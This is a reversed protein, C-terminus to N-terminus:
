QLLHFEVEIVIFQPPTATELVGRGQALVTKSAALAAAVDALSAPDGASAGHEIESGLIFRLVTGDLLTVTHAATDVASVTDAFELSGTARPLDTRITTTPRIEIALGLVTLWGDPPPTANTSFNASDVNLAILTGDHADGFRITRAVFAGDTPAQPSAPAPRRAEIFPRRGAALAAQLRTAFEALNAVRHHGRRDHGHHEGEGEEGWLHEGRLRTSSDLVVKLGGIALTLTDATPGMVVATVRAVIREDSTMQSSRLVVIRSAVLSDTVLRIRVRAPGSDLTNGLEGITAQASFVPASTSGGGPTSPPNTVQNADALQQCAAAVLLVGLPLWTVLRTRLRSIGSTDM